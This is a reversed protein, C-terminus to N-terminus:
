KNIKKKIILVSGAVLAIAIIATAAMLIYNKDKGTPATLQVKQASDADIESPVIRDVSTKVTSAANPEAGQNALEQNGVISFQMRRGQDNKTAVIETLNNYTNQSKEDYADVTTKLVLNRNVSSEDKNAMEPLLEKNLSNYIM